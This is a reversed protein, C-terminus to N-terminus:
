INRIGFAHALRECIRKIVEANGKKIKEGSSEEIFELNDKHWTGEVKESYPYPPSGDFKDFEKKDISLGKINKIQLYIKVPEDFKTKGYFKGAFTILKNVEYFINRLSMRNKESYSLKQCYSIVANRFLSAVYYLKQKEEEEYFDMFRVGDLFPKYFHNRYLNNKLWEKTEENQFDVFEKSLSFPVISITLLKEKEDDFLSEGFDENEIFEKHKQGELNEM